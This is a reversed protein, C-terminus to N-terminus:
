FLKKKEYRVYSIHSMLFLSAKGNRVKLFRAHGYISFSFGKWINCKYM